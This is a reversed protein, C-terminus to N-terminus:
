KIKKWHNYRSLGHHMCEQIFPHEIGFLETIKTKM